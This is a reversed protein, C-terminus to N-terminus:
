VIITILLDLALHLYPFLFAPEGAVTILPKFYRIWKVTHLTRLNVFKVVSNDSVADEGEPYESQVVSMPDQLSSM